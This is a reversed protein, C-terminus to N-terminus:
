DDSVQRFRGRFVLHALGGQYVYSDFGDSHLERTGDVGVFTERMQYDTARSLDESLWVIGGDHLVGVYLESGTEREVEMAFRDGEVFTESRSTQMGTETDSVSVGHLRGDAWWYRQEVPFTQTYNTAPSHITFDGVWRGAYQKLYDVADSSAMLLSGVCLCLVSVFLFRVDAFYAITRFLLSGFWLAVGGALVLPRHLGAAKAAPVSRGARARCGFVAM